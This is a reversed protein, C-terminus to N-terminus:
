AVTGNAIAIGGSVRFDDRKAFRSAGEAVVPKRVGNEVDGKLRAAHTGACHNLGANGAENVARVIGLGARDAGVKLDEGMGDEIVADFDSGADEGGVGNGKELGKESSAASFESASQAGREAAAGRLRM